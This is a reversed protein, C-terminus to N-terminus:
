ALGDGTELILVHQRSGHRLENVDLPRLGAFLAQRPEDIADLLVVRNGIAREAISHLELLQDFDIKREHEGLADGRGRSRRARGAPAPGSALRTAKRRVRRASTTSSLKSCTSSAAGSMPRTSAAHGSSLISMVLRSASRM